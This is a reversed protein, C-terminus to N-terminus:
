SNDYNTEDDFKRYISSNSFRAKTLLSQIKEQLFISKELPLKELQAAVHQGFIIFNNTMSKQECVFTLTDVANNLSEDYCSVKNTTLGSKKKTITTTQTIKAEIGEIIGETGEIGNYFILNPTELEEDQINTSKSFSIAITYIFLVILFIFPIFILEYVDILAVEWWYLNVAPSRLTDGGNRMIYEIWYCATDMPSMPRDNFKKSMKKASESYIPNNLVEYLANDMTKENLDSLDIKIAMKSKVPFDVNFFQDAFLPVGILPVGCMITEQIGKAGGHIIAARINKHKLVALQSIWSFTRTNNPLSFPLNEPESSKMLVRIPNIKEFSKFLAQIVDTPFTELQTMSGFAFYIFGNKSEDLWQQFEGLSENAGDNQIHIGGVKIFAPTSPKVGDSALHSNVIVLSINKELERVSPADPGFYKKIIDTQASTYYNFYNNVYFTHITNYLRSLFTTPNISSRLLNSSIASNQPNAVMAHVWPYGPNSAVGVVPANLHYGFAM